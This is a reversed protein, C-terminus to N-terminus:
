LVILDQLEQLKAKVLDVEDFPEYDKNYKELQIEIDYLLSDIM